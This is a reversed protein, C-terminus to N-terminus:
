KGKFDPERKELFANMGEKFDETGMLLDVLKLEYEVHSEINDATLGRYMAEKTLGLAMLSGKAIRAALEKASDMLQDHPVVKNVLGIREAERADIVDSTYALEFAKGLGVLKPLLYTYAGDPLGRKIFATTFEAKESAIRIDSVMAIVMGGAAAMGNVAAIVPKALYRAEIVGPYAVHSRTMPPYTMRGPKWDSPFMDWDAGSCFGRGTGTIILVRIEEDQSVEQFAQTLERFMIQDIANLKKPRNLTLTAVNNEKELIIAEYGM